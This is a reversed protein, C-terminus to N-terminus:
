RSPLVLRSSGWVMVVEYPSSSCDTGSDYELVTQLKNPCSPRLPTETIKEDPSVPTPEANWVLSPFFVVCKRGINGAATLMHKSKNLLTRRAAGWGCKSSVYEFRNM